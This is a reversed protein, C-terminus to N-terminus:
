KYFTKERGLITEDNWSTVNLHYIQSPLYFITLLSFTKIGTKRGISLNRFFVNGLAHLALFLSLKGVIM